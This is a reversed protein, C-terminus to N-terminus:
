VGSPSNLLENCLYALYSMVGPANECLKDVVTGDDFRLTVKWPGNEYQGIEQVAKLKRGLKAIRKKRVLKAKKPNM